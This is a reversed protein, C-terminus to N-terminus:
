AGVKVGQWGYQEVLAKLQKPRYRADNEYRAKVSPHILTPKDDIVLPRDLPQKFRYVHKRSHHLQARTGDTLNDHIHPETLLGAANAEDLMWALPTDSAHNGNKDPKYSGGIDAHVGAFWVQKLDVGPRPTWVTPTFDERREDIAMAHRAVAVNAGMKTDYFEDTGNFLGMISIPIGLAGVTDWVGIFHVDRQAYSHRDRFRIAAEGRPHHSKKTSKYINWAETILRADSRKLIGCNNILGSLARVTYAGRSFGFLYIHDGPAYNQVIYRYGDLINKHIGSGTSGAILSNHYSGLGWDYFVHQKIGEAQPTVSRALKLVNTPFDTNIDEEPRNWTGDACVVIHAM